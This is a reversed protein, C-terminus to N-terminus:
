PKDTKNNFVEESTVSVSSKLENLSGYETYKNIFKDIDELKCRGQSDLAMGTEHKIYANLENAKMTRITGYMDRWHTKCFNDRFYSINIKYRNKSSDKKFINFINNYLEDDINNLSANGKQSNILDNEYPLNDKGDLNMLEDKTLLGDAKSYVNKIYDYLQYQYVPNSEINIFEPNNLQEVTLPVRKMVRFRKLMTDADSGLIEIVKNENNTNIIIDFKVTVNYQKVNKNETSLKDSTTMRKLNERFANMDNCGEVEDLYIINNSLIDGNFKDMFQQISLDASIKFFKQLNMVFASKLCNKAGCNLLNLRLREGNLKHHFWSLYINYSKDDNFTLRFFKLWTKIDIKLTSDNMLQKNCQYSLKNYTMDDQNDFQPIYDPNFGLKGFEHEIYNNSRTIGKYFYTENDKLYCVNDLGQTDGIEYYREQLYRSLIGNMKVKFKQFLLRRDNMYNDRNIENWKQKCESLENGYDPLEDESDDYDIQLKDQVKRLVKVEKNSLTKHLKFSKNLLEICDYIQCQFKTNGYIADKAHTMFSGYFQSIDCRYDTHYKKIIKQEYNNWKIGHDRKDFWLKIEAILDKMTMCLGYNEYNYLICKISNYRSSNISCGCLEFISYTKNFVEDSCQYM